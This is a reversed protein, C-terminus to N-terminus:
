NLPGNSLYPHGKTDSIKLDLCKQSINKVLLSIGQQLNKKNRLFVDDFLTVKKLFFKIPGNSRVLHGLFM